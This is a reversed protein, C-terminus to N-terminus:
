AAMAEPSLLGNEYGLAVAHMMNRADLKAIVLRRQSKVTEVSSGLSAATEDMTAGTAALRLVELERDALPGGKERYEVLQLRRRQGPATRWLESRRRKELADELEERFFPMQEPAEVDFGAARLEDLSAPAEHLDKTKGRLRHWRRRADLMRKVACAGVFEDPPNEALVGVIGDQVLDEFDVWTPFGHKRAFHIVARRAYDLRQDQPLEWSMPNELVPGLARGSLV